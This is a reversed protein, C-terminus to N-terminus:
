VWAVEWFRVEPGSYSGTLGDHSVYGSITLAVLGGWVSVKLASAEEVLFWTSEGPEYVKLPVRLTVRGSRRTGAGNRGPM